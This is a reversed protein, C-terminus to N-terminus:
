SVGVVVTEEEPIPPVELGPDVPVPDIVEPTPGLLNPDATNTLELDLLGASWFTPAELDPSCDVPHFEALSGGCLVTGAGDSIVVTDAAWDAHVELVPHSSSIPIWLRVPASTEPPAAGLEAVVHVTSAAPSEYSWGQVWTEARTAGFGEDVRFDSAADPNSSGPEYTGVPIGDANRLELPGWSMMRQPGAAGQMRGCRIPRVVAAARASVVERFSYNYRGLAPIRFPNIGHQEGACATEMVNTAKGSDAVGNAGAHLNPAVFADDVWILTQRLADAGHHVHAVNAGPISGTPKLTVDDDFQVDDHDLRMAHGFEHMGVQIPDYAASGLVTSWPPSPQGQVIQWNYIIEAHRIVRGRGPLFPAPRFVALPPAGVGGGGGGGPRPPPNNPNPWGGPPPYPYDGGGGEYGARGVLPRPGFAASDPSWFSPM